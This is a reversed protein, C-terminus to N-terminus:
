CPKGGCQGAAQVAAGAQAARMELLPGELQEIRRGMSAIRGNMAGVNFFTENDAPADLRAAYGPWSSDYVKVKDFGLQDLVAATQAAGSSDNVQRRALKAYTDPDKWNSEYPILM